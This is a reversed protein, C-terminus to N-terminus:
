GIDTGKHPEPLGADFTRVHCENNRASIMTLQRGSRNPIISEFIECQIRNFEKILTTDKMWEDLHDVVSAHIVGTEVNEINKNEFLDGDPPRHEPPAPPELSHVLWWEQLPSPDRSAITVESMGVIHYSNADIFVGCNFNKVASSPAVIRSVRPQRKYQDITMGTLHSDFCARPTLAKMKSVKKVRDEFKCREPPLRPRQRPM